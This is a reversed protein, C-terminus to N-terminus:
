KSILKNISHVFHKVMNNVNSKEVIIRHSNAAMEELQVPKEIIRKEMAATLSELNHCSFRYGSHNEIVLDDETGDAESVVCTKKWFMAQNLALGGIGPLVFCDTAAFYMDVDKVIRGLYYINENNYMKLQAELDPRLPGDGIILLKINNYKERLKAFADVLLDPRKESTLGGVFLFSIFNDLNYKQRIEKSKSIITDAQQEMEDIEIGNYCTEIKSEDIGMNLCYNSAHTSYTLIYDAKKFFISVFKNKFKMLLGKARGPEWACAWIIIKKKKRKAWSLIRRLSLDGAIGQVIIIDPNIKKIETFMGWDYVIDFPLIRYKYERFGISKFKTEGEYSPQGDEKKKYGYFVTLDFDKTKSIKEYFTLRYHQLIPTILVIKTM